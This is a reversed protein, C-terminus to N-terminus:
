STKWTVAAAGAIVGFVCFGVVTSNVIGFSGFMLGLIGTMFTASAFARETDFVKMSIFTVTGFALLFMWGFTGVTELNIWQFLSVMGTVNSPSVIAMKNQECGKM